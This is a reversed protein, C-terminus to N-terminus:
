QSGGKATLPQGASVQVLVMSAQAKALWYAERDMPVPGTSALKPLEIPETQYTVKASRKLFSLLHDSKLIYRHYSNFNQFVDPSRRHSGPFFLGIAQGQRNLLAAGRFGATRKLVSFKADQITSELQTRAKNGPIPKTLLEEAAEYFRSLTKGRQWMGPVASLRVLAQNAEVRSVPPAVHIHRLDLAVWSQAPYHRARQQTDPETLWQHNVGDYWLAEKLQYGISLDAAGLLVHSARLAGRLREVSTTQLRFLLEQSEPTNAFSQNESSADDLYKEFQMLMRDGLVPARLTFFRPDAQAGLISHIATDAKAPRPQSQKSTEPLQYGLVKVPDNLRTGHSSHLSLAPFDYDGQIKLLLYQDMDGPVYVVQAPFTGNETTVQFRNGSQLLHKGAIVYGDKSVFFGTGWDAPAFALATASQGLPLTPSPLNMRKKEATAIAKAFHVQERTLVRNVLGLGQQAAPQNQEAALTWWASAQVPDDGGLPALIPESVGVEAPLMSKLVSVILQVHEDAVFLDLTRLAEEPQAPRYLATAQELIAHRQPNLAVMDDILRPHKAAFSEPVKQSVLTGARRGQYYFLGVNYQSPAHSMRAAQRYLLFARALNRKTGQGQEYLQALNYYSDPQPHNAAQQLWHVARTADAPVGYGQLYMVGLAHQSPGYHQQSALLFHDHADRLYQNEQLSIVQNENTDWQKFEEETLSKATLRLGFNYYLVGLQHYASVVGQSAAQQLYYEATQPNAPVQQRGDDLGNQYIRGLNYQAVAQGQRAAQTYFSVAQAADKAVGQGTEYLYALSAQAGAHGTLAAQHFLQAAQEHNGVKQCLLGLNYNDAASNALTSTGYPNRSDKPGLAGLNPSAHHVLPYYIASKQHFLDEALLRARTQSYGRTKYHETLDTMIRQYRQRMADNAIRTIWFQFDTSSQPYPYGASLNLVLALPGTVLPKTFRQSEVTFDFEAEEPTSKLNVPQVPNYRNRAQELWAQAWQRGAFEPTAATPLAPPAAFLAMGTWFGLCWLLLRPQRTKMLFM